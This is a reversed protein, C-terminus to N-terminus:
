PTAPWLWAAGRVGSSDGHRAKVLRTNVQDSFVYRPLYLPVKTYIVDINSMGGGLVIVGPDLINIVTSLALALLNCYEDLLYEADLDGDRAAEAIEKASLQQETRNLYSTELGPGALWTEICNHRGCFCERNGEPAASKEDPQFAALPLTNHGWEGCIANVGQALHQQFVIGGGVGTGLIVGFVIDEHMASGDSAESLAFCDADNAIRVPRGILAELDERLPQGNLCTSNCNMLLGTKLSVAGPTGIGVPRTPSHKSKTSVLQIIEALKDLTQPYNNKPTDIRERCIISGDTAMVIAEIKTGGLDIGIRPTTDQTKVNLM